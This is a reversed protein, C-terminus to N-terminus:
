DNSGLVVEPANIADGPFYGLRSAREEANQRTSFTELNGIKTWGLPTFVYQQLGFKQFANQQEKSLPLIEAKWPTQQTKILDKM